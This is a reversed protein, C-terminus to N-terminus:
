SIRILSCKIIIISLFYKKIFILHWFLIKLLITKSKINEWIKRRFTICVKCIFLSREKWNISIYKFFYFSLLNFCKFRSLIKILLHSFKFSKTDWLSVHLLDNVKILVPLIKCCIFCKNPTLLIICSICLISPYFSSHLFLIFFLSM